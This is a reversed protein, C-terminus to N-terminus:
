QFCPYPFIIQTYLDSESPTMSPCLPSCVSARRPACAIWAGNNTGSFHTTSSCVDAGCISGLPRGRRSSAPESRERPRRVGAKMESLLSEGPKEGLGVLPSGRSFRAAGGRSVGSGSPAGGWGRRRRRRPPAEGDDQTQLALWGSRVGCWAPPSTALVFVHGRGPPGWPSAAVALQTWSLLPAGGVGVWARIKGRM